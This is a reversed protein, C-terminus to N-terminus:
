LLLFILSLPSYNLCRCSPTRGIVAFINSQFFQMRARLALCLGLLDGTVLFQVVVSSFGMIVIVGMIVIM